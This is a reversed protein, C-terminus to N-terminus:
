ENKGGQSDRGWISTNQRLHTGGPRYPVQGPTDVVMCYGSPINSKYKVSGINLIIAPEAKLYDGKKMDLAQMNKM